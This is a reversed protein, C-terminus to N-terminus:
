EIESTVRSSSPSPSVGTSSSAPSRIM